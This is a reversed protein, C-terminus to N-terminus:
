IKPKQELRIERETNERDAKDGVFFGALGGGGTWAAVTVLAPTATGASAICIGACAIAGCVACLGKWNWTM